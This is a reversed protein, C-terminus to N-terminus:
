GVGKMLLTGPSVFEKHFAQVRWSFVVEPHSLKRQDGPILIIGGILQPRYTKPELPSYTIRRQSTM